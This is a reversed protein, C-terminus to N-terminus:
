RWGVPPKAAEHPIQSSAGAPRIGLRTVLLWAFLAVSVGVAISALAVLPEAAAHGNLRLALAGLMVPVGTNYLWFQADAVPGKTIAPYALGILAFLSMSVWGLLNLHAHVATLTHDGSAGMAIGLTVAAAFYVAALRLWARSRFNDTM